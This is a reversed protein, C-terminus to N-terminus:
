RARANCLDDSAVVGASEETFALEGYLPHSPNETQHLGKYAPDFLNELTRGTAVELKIGIANRRNAVPLFVVLCLIYYIM